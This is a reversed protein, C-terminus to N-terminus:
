LMNETLALNFLVTYKHPVPWPWRVRIKTANNSTTQTYNITIAQIRYHLMARSTKRTIYYITCYPMVLLLFNNNVAMSQPKSVNRSKNVQANDCPHVTRTVTCFKFHLHLCQM